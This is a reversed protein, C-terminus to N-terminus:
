KWLDATKISKSKGKEFQEDGQLIKNVFNKDYPSEKQVEFKIKLAKMFAKIADLQSADETYATINTAQM